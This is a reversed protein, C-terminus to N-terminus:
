LKIVNYDKLVRIASITANVRHEEGEGEEPDWSGDRKQKKELESLSRLVLKHNSSLGSDKLCRILWAVYAGKWDSSFNDEIVKVARNFSEPDPGPYFALMPLALWTARLYGKLRGSTDCNALLFDTPCYTGEAEAYGFRILVHACYATLWVRTETRGPMMWEPPNYKVIESVEDWGGDKQQRDLLYQCALDVIDGKYVKLDDFWELVYCTDTINSVNKVWYSFGGDRKQFSALEELIEITPKEDWIIASLRAKEVFTGHTKVYNLSKQINLSKGKM